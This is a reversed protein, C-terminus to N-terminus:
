GLADCPKWNSNFHNGASAQSTTQSAENVIRLWPTTRASLCSFPLSWEGLPSVTVTSSGLDVTPIRNDTDEANQTALKADAEKTAQERERQKILEHLYLGDDESDYSGSLPM